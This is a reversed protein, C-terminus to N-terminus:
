PASGRRRSHRSFTLGDHVLERRGGQVVVEYAGVIRAMQKMRHGSRRRGIGLRRQDDITALATEDVIEVALAIEIGHRRQPVDVEPVVMRDDLAGDHILELADGVVLGEDIERVRRRDLQRSPHHLERLRLAHGLQEVARAAGVRHLRRDLERALVPLRQALGLAELDQRELVAIVADVEAAHGGVAVRAEAAGVLREHRAEELDVRGVGIAIGPRLVIGRRERPQAGLRELALDQELAGVRHGGEDGFRDLCAAAHDHRGVGEPRQHALDAVAVAHEQDGVLDDGAEAPGAGHEAGTGPADLRVEHDEGLADVRGVDRKTGRSHALLDLLRKMAVVREGGDHVAIGVGAVRQGARRAHRRHLHQLALLDDLVRGPLAGVQLLSEGRDCPAKGEDAVNAALPQHRRDCSTRLGAVRSGNVGASGSGRATSSPQRLRPTM